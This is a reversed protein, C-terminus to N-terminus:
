LPLNLQNFNCKKNYEIRCDVCLTVIWGSDNPTGANGCHECTKYSISEVMDLIGDVYEDSFNTYIRLSGFKEKVQLVQFGKYPDTPERAFYDKVWKYVDKGDALIKTRIDCVESWRRTKSRILFLASKIIEYWGDDCEFGFCMLSEKPNQVNFWKPEIEVLKQELEPTM